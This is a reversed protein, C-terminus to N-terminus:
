GFLAARLKQILAIEKPDKSEGRDSSVSAEWFIILEIEEDSLEIKM